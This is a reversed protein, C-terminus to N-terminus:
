KKPFEVSFKTGEMYTSTFTVKGKHNEEIMRKVVYMGIGTGSKYSSKTTFFPAFVKRKNEERMGIGNDSIELLDTKAKHTLKIKILPTFEDRSEKSLLNRKEQTAEYANDMLNYVAETMQSKVGYIIDSSGLKVEIPAEAIEHKIKLLEASLDVVEKLSFRSFFTSTEEVRAFNLIGKVIGDTRKVNNILSDAIKSLYKLTKKLDKNNKTVAPHKALYDKIEYKLEGSAVSFQNLRNKIQHAVGDAMGGISALKEATFIKEQAQKTEEMFLSNEIALAAQHSLIKFVNIDDDSYPQKNLKAGLVIFGLLEDQIVSPVILAADSLAGLAIKINEPLEEYVCPEKCKALYRIVPHEYLFTINKYPTAKANRSAKMRYVGDSKDDIFIAVFEVKVSRKVIYVILKSLKTLDHETAMGSAAKLLLKQYRKQEALLKEEMRIKLQSYAMPSLSAFFIILVAPVLWWHVGMYSYLIPQMKYAFIFPVSLFFPYSIFFAIARTIFVRIDLLRYKLIAYTGIIAYLAVGINGLPYFFIGWAPLLISAGGIFGIIFGILLYLGQTRKIGKSKKIFKSLEYHGSVAVVAWTSMMLTYGVTATNYYFSDFVLQWGGFILGEKTFCMLIWFIFAQLYVFFLIKKKKLNSLIYVTHYFFVAILLGGTGAIKWGISAQLSTAARGVLFTGIGWAFVTLNFLTWIRHLRTKGYFLLIVLLVLTTIAVFLGSLSFLTM